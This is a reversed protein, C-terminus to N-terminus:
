PVVTCIAHQPPAVCALMDDYESSGELETALFAASYTNTIEHIVEVDLVAPDCAEKAGRDLEATVAAPVNPNAAVSDRLTCVDTFSNHSGGDIDVRLLPRGPVLEVVPETNTAIPTTQDGTSSVVLVPVDVKALEAETLPESYPAMLVLAKIRDDPVTTGVSNSHGAVTALSTFGGWSHGTLAVRTEDIIGTLPDAPDTDAALVTDLTATIDPPRNNANAEDTVAAGSLLDLATSGPHDPSVVVYGKSALFETFFTAVWRFGGGGHSYVVLPFNGEAAPADALAVESTYGLGPLFSYEVPAAGGTTAPDVPYWIDAPFTRGGREADTINITRRGVAYPGAAAASAQEATSAAAREAEASAASASAEAANQGADSCGAVLIAGAGIAAAVASRAKTTRPTM